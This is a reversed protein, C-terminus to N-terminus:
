DQVCYLYASGSNCGPTGSNHFSQNIYTSYGAVGGSGPMNNTWNTCNLTGDANAMTFDGTGSWVQFNVYVNGPQVAIPALLQPSAVFFDNDTASVLAGDVRVIPAGTKTFRAAISSTTTSLLAKYRGAGQLGHLTADANCRADAAGIGGTPSPSFSGRSVFAIKQQATVPPLTVKVSQSVGLCYLRFGPGYNCPHNYGRTWNVPGAYRSGAYGTFAGTNSQWNNCNQIANGPADTGTMVDIGYGPGFGGGEDLAIPHFIQNPYDPATLSDAFPRGDVRVWGRAASLRSLATTTDSSLWAVYTAGSLGPVSSATVNCIADAGSLMKAADTAGTGLMKIDAIGYTASTVFAKNAPAFKATVTKNATM